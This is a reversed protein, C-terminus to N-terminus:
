IAMLLDLKKKYAKGSFGLYQQSVLKCINKYMPQRWNFLSRVDEVSYFLSLDESLRGKIDVKDEPKRYIFEPDPTLDYLLTTKAIVEDQDFGCMEFLRVRYDESAQMTKYVKKSYNMQAFYAVDHSTKAQRLQDCM